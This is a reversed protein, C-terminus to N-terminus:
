AASRSWRARLERVGRALLRFIKVALWTFVCLFVTVIALVLLPHTFTLWLLAPVAFDGALSLVWNSFPEPSHNVAFRLAAKSAHASVAAGGALLTLSLRAAPDLQAFAAAGLVAAGVPRIFTHVADWLSDFWPIKDSIFEAVYAVAAVALVAPHALTELGRLPDPLTLWGFRIALGLGLVTAYLRLGAAVGGGLALALLQLADM